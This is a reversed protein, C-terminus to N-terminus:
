KRAENMFMGYCWHFERAIFDLMSCAIGTDVISEASEYVVFCLYASRIRLRRAGYREVFGGGYMGCKHLLLHM